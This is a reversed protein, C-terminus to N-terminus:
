PLSSIYKGRFYGLISNRDATSLTNTVWVVAWISAELNGGYHRNCINYTTAGPCNYDGSASVAQVNNTRLINGANLWYMEYLMPKGKASALPIGGIPDGNGSNMIYSTTAAAFGISWEVESQGFVCSYTNEVDLSHLLFITQPLTTPPAPTPTVAMTASSAFKLFRNTVALGTNNTIYPQNGATAQKFDIATTGGNSNTWESYKTGNAGTFQDAELWMYVGAITPLNTTTTGGGGSAIPATYGMLADFMAENQAFCSLCVFIPIYKLIAM